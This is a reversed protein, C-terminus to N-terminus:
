LINALLTPLPRVVIMAATSRNTPTTNASVLMISSETTRRRGAYSTSSETARRRGAYGVLYQFIPSSPQYRAPSLQPRDCHQPKNNNHQNNTDLTSKHKNLSTATPKQVILIFEWTTCTCFALDM